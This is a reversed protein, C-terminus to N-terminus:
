PLAFHFSIDDGDCELVVAEASGLDFDATATVKPPDARIRDAAALNACIHGIVINLFESVADEALEDFEELQIGLVVVAIALAHEATVQMALTFTESGIHLAQSWVRDGGWEPLESGCVALELPSGMVREYLQQLVSASLETIQPRGAQGLTLKLRLHRSRAAEAYEQEAQALRAPDVYGNAILLESMLMRASGLQAQLEEVQQESLVGLSVAATGFDVSRQLQETRITALVEPQIVGAAVAVDGLTAVASRGQELVELFQDGDIVGNEHLFQSFSKTNM